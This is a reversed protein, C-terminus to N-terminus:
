SPCEFRSCRLLSPHTDIEPRHLLSVVYNCLFASAVREGTM